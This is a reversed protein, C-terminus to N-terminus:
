RLKTYSTVIEHNKKPGRIIYKTTFQLPSTVTFTLHYSDEKCIHTNELTFPIPSCDNLNISHLVGEASNYIILQSSTLEFTNEQQFNIPTNNIFYKGQELYSFAATDKNQFHATGHITLNPNSIERKFYYEGTFLKELTNITENM